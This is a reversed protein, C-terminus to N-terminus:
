DSTGALEAASTAAFDIQRRANSLATVVTTGVPGARDYLTATGISVGAAAITSEARLGQEHGVPLRALTLTVDANIYGAGASGWHCVHNTSDGLIAARQFPTIPEGAVLPPLSQWAIKREANQHAAFDSSWEGDGSRFLPPSGEPSMTGSPPMPLEEGPSWVTGPPQDGTTLFVASARVRPAGDQLLVAAAVAIRSGRRVVTSSLAFETAAVPQYLDVTLRAPVFAAPCHTELERALLGCLGTGSLTGPAWPSIALPRPALRGDHWAFFSLM